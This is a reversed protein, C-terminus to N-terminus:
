SGALAYMSLAHIDVTAPHERSYLDLDPQTQSVPVQHDEVDAAPQGDVFLSLHSERVVITLAVTRGTQLGPLSVRPTIPVNNQGNWVVIHVFEALTDTCLEYSLKGAVAWRLGWCFNADSGPTISLDIDGVFSTVGAPYNLDIGADADSALAALELRGPLYRVEAKTPDQDRGVLDVFSDGTGDLKAQYLVAGRPVAASTPAHSVVQAPPASVRPLVLFAGTILAVLAVAAAIFWRPQWRRRGAPTELAATLADVLAGSSPYRDMPSKALARKFVPNVSDHLSPARETALPVPHTGHAVLLALADHETYPPTGTLLEFAVCALSYLDARHGVPEGTAQEPAMYTPTGLYRSSVTVSNDGLAKALGFDVLMPQGHADVIINSPKIDRHIVGRSHAYDLATGLRALLRLAEAPPLPGKGLLDKLSVGNVLQMALYLRAGAEGADCVRVIGPHDLTQMVRAERVFRAPFEEQTALVTHLLKLAVPRRDVGQVARYVEGMGGQGILAEITFSGITAGTPLPSTATM